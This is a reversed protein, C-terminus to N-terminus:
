QLQGLVRAEDAGAEAHDAYEVGPGALEAIMGVDMVEDGAAAERSSAAPVSGALVKEHGDFREGQDEAGLETVSEFLGFEKSLDRGADPAFWPHDMGLGDTGAFLSELIESRIDEADSDAVVAQTLQFIALDSEGVLLGGSVLELVAGDGGLLEDMTEQLVDQRWAEDFDTVVAQEAGGLPLQQLLGSLQEGGGGAIKLRYSDGGGGRSRQWKTRVAACREGQEAWESGSSAGWSSGSGAASTKKNKRWGWRVGGKTAAGSQRSCLWEAELWLFFWGSQSAEEEEPEGEIGCWEKEEQLRVKKGVVSM